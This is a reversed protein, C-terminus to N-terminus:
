ISTKTVFFRRSGGRNMRAPCPRPKLLHLLDAHVAHPEDVGSVVPVVRAGGAGLVHGAEQLVVLLDHRPDLREGPAHVVLDGHDPVVPGVVPQAQPHHLRDPPVDPELLPEHVPLGRRVPADLQPDRLEQEELLLARLGPEVHTGQRKCADRARGGTRGSNFSFARCTIRMSEDPPVPPALSRFCTCFADLLIEHTTCRTSSGRSAASM